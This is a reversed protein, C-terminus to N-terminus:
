IYCFVCRGTFWHVANHLTRNSTKLGKLDPQWSLFRRNDVYLESSYHLLVGCWSPQQKPPKESSFDNYKSGHIELM